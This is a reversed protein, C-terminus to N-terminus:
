DQAKRVAKRVLDRARDAVALAPGTVLNATASEAGPHPRTPALAEAARVATALSHLREAPVKARLQPFEYREEYRAHTLVADRLLLLADDFGDGDPGAEALAALM